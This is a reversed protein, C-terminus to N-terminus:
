NPHYLSCLQDWLLVRCFSTNLYIIAQVAVVQNKKVMENLNDKAFNFVTSLPYNLMYGLSNQCSKADDIGKSEDKKYQDRNTNVYFINVKRKGDGGSEISNQIPKSEYKCHGYFGFDYVSFMMILFTVVVM